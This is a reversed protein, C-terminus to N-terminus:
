EEVAIYHNYFDSYHEGIIKYGTLSEYSVCNSIKESPIVEIRFNKGDFGWGLRQNLHRLVENVTGSILEINSDFWRTEVVEEGEGPFEFKFDGVGTIAYALDELQEEVTRGKLTEFIKVGTLIVQTRDIENNM